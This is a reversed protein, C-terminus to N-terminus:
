IGTSYDLLKGKSILSNPLVISYSDAWSITSVTRADSQYDRIIRASYELLKGTSILSDAFTIGTQEQFPHSQELTVRITMHVTSYTQKNAKGTEQGKEGESQWLLHPDQLGSVVEEAGNGLEVHCQHTGRDLSAGLHGQWLGLPRAPCHDPDNQGFGNRRGPDRESAEWANDCALGVWDAPVWSSDRTAPFSSQNTGTGFLWIENGGHNYIKIDQVFNENSWFLDNVGRKGFTM